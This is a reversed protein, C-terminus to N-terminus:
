VKGGLFILGQTNSYIYKELGSLIKFPSHAYSYLFLSPSCNALSLLTSASKTTGTGSEPFAAAIPYEFYM